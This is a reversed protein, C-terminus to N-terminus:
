PRGATQAPLAVRDFFARMAQSVPDDDRSAKLLVTMHSRHKVELSEAQCHNNKLAAAFECAMEPLTLLDRDAYIILFPPLGGHVHTLPSAARRAEADAGFVANLINLKSKIRWSNVDKETVHLAVGAEALSEPIHYIGSIPIAGRIAALTLGEAKLYTEDTALLAALHGGASHGSVFIQAPSGGYQQINKHTWAFARAVDKVHEPHRVDPSLRYNPLVVGVGHRAWYMGLASYIGFHEKDGITWAGGHVFFLVPFDKKGKPVYLDLKNKNRHADEAPCLDRYTVDRVVRVEFAPAKLVQESPPAALSRNAPFCVAGAFVILGFRMCSSLSNAIQGSNM